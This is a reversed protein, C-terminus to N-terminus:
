MMNNRFIITIKSKRQFDRIIDIHQDEIDCFGLYLYALKEEFGELFKTLEDPTFVWNCLITLKRLTKPIAAGFTKLYKGVYLPTYISFNFDNGITLTELSQLRKLSKQLTSFYTSDLNLELLKLNHCFTALYELVEPIYRSTYGCLKFSELKTSNELIFCLDHIEPCTLFLSLSLLKDFILNEPYRSTGYTILNKCLSFELYKINPFHALFSLLRTKYFNVDAFHLYVLTFHASQTFNSSRNKGVYGDLFHKTNQLDIIKLRKLRRQERVLKGLAICEEINWFKEAIIEELNTAVESAAALLTLKNFSGSFSLKELQSWGRAKTFKQKQLFLQFVNITYSFPEIEIADFSIEKLGKSKTIIIRGFAELIENAIAPFSSYKNREIWAKIAKVVIFMNVQRLYEPYEYYTPTNSQFFKFEDATNKLYMLAVNSLSRDSLSNVFPKQWLFPIAESCWKRNLLICSHLTVIDDGIQCCIDFICDHPLTEMQFSRLLDFKPHDENFNCKYFLGAVITSNTVRLGTLFLM